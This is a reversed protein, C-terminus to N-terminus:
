HSQTPLNRGHFLLPLHIGIQRKQATNVVNKKIVCGFLTEIVQKKVYFAISYRDNQSNYLFLLLNTSAHTDHSHPFPPM